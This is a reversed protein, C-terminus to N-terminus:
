LDLVLDVREVVQPGALEDGGAVRERALHAAGAVALLGLADLRQARGLAAAQATLWSARRSGSHVCASVVAPRRM